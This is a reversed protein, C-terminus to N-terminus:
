ANKYSAEYDALRKAEEATLPRKKREEKLQLYDRYATNLWFLSM